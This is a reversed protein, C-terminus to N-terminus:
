PLKFLYILFYIPTFSVFIHMNLIYIPWMLLWQDQTIPVALALMTSCTYGRPILNKFLYSFLTPWQLRSFTPSQSYNLISFNIFIKILLPNEKWVFNANVEKITFSKRWLIFFSNLRKELTERSKLIIYVYESYILKLVFNHVLPYVYM